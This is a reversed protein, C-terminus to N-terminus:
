FFLVFVLFLVFFGLSTLSLAPAQVQAELSVAGWRGQWPLSTSRTGM